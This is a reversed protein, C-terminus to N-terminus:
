FAIWEQTWVLGGSGSGQYRETVLGTGRMKGGMGEPDATCYRLLARREDLFFTIDVWKPDLEAPVAGCGIVAHEAISSLKEAITYVGLTDWVRKQIESEELLCTVQHRVKTSRCKRNGLFLPPGIGSDVSISHEEYAFFSSQNFISECLVLIRAFHANLAERREAYTRCSKHCDCTEPPDCLPVIVEGTEPSHFAMQTLLLLYAAERYAVLLHRSHKEQSNSSQRSRETKSFEAYAVSWQLLRSIHTQHRTFRTGVLLGQELLTWTHWIWKTETFLVDRAQSLCTFARPLPYPNPDPLYSFSDPDFPNLSPIPLCEEPDSLINAPGDFLRVSELELKLFLKRLSEQNIDVTRYHTDRYTTRLNRSLLGKLGNSFHMQALDFNGQFAEFVSFLKMAMMNIEPANPHDSALDNSLMRLAKQYIKDSLDCYEFAERSIGLEFRRHVAGVAAAAALVTPHQLAAKIAYSRWISSDFYAAFEPGTRSRFFDFCYFDNDTEFMVKGPARYLQAFGEDIAVPKAPRPLSPIAVKGNTSSKQRKPDPECISTPSDENSTPPSPQQPYGDCKRGTSYKHLASLLAERGWMEKKPNQVYPM